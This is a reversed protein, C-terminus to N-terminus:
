SSYYVNKVMEKLKSLIYNKTITDRLREIENILTEINDRADYPELEDVTKLMMYVPYSLRDFEDSSCVKINEKYFNVVDEKLEDLKLKDFQKELTDDINLPANTDVNLKNIYDKLYPYDYANVVKNFDIEDIPYNDCVKVISAVLQVTALYTYPNLTSKFLRFEITDSNSINLAMYKRKKKKKNIYSISKIFHSDDDSLFSAWQTSHRRALTILEDKYNEMFLTIKDVTDSQLPYRSVHVHLGCTTTDDGRFDNDTLYKFADIYLQANEMTWEINQPHSIIEFGNTISSDEMCYAPLHNNVYYAMDDNDYSGRNEVEVETGLYIDSYDGKFEYDVPEHYELINDYEDDPYCDECYYEDHRESYQIYDNHVYNGCGYCRTYYNDLCDDCVYHNDNVITIKDNLYDNGCHYCTTYNEYYCVECLCENTDPTLILDEKEILNECINCKIM